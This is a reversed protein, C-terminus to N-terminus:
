TGSSGINFMWTVGFRDELQGFADGWPAKELPMHVTGGELLGDWWGRLLADDDGWLCIPHHSKGADGGRMSAPTDACMLTGMASDLQSHMVLDADGPDQVMGFEAFTQSTVTGGFVSRYLQMAGAAQDTFSLYPSMQAATM